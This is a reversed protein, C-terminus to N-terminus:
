YDLGPESQKVAIPRTVIAPHQAVLYVADLGISACYMTLFVAIAKIAPAKYGLALSEM